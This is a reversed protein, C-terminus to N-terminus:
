SPSWWSWVIGLQNGMWTKVQVHRDPEIGSVGERWQELAEALDLHNTLWSILDRAFGSEGSLLHWRCMPGEMRFVSPQANLKPM